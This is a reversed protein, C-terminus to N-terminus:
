PSCVSDWWVYGKEQFIDDLSDRTRNLKRCETLNLSTKIWNGALWDRKMCCGTPQPPYQAFLRSDDALLGSLAVAFLVFAFVLLIKKM